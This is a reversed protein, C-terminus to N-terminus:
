RRYAGTVETKVKQGITRYAMKKSKTGAIIKGDIQRRVYFRAVDIVGQDEKRAHDPPLNGVSSFTGGGPIGLVANYRVGEGGWEMNFPGGPGSKELQALLAFAMPFFDVDLEDYLRKILGSVETDSILVPGPM